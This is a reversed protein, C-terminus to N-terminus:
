SPPIPALVRLRAARLIWSDTDLPAHRTKEARGSSQPTQGGAVVEVAAGGSGWACFGYLGYSAPGYSVATM